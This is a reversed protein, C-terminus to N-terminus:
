EALFSKGSGPLGRLIFMVRVGASKYRGALATPKEDKRMELRNSFWNKPNSRNQAPDVNSQHKQNFSIKRTPHFNKSNTQSGPLLTDNKYNSINPNELPHNEKMWRPANYPKISHYSNM